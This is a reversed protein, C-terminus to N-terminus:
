IFYLCQSLPDKIVQVPTVVVDPTTSPQVLGAIKSTDVLRTTRPDTDPVKPPLDVVSAKRGIINTIKPMIPADDPTTKSKSVGPPTIKTKCAIDPTISSPKPSVNPTPTVVPMVKPKPAFDPMVKPKPPIHPTIKPTPAVDPTFKPKPPVDPTTKPKPGVNPMTTVEHKIKPKPSIDPKIRRDTDTVKSSVINPKTQSDSKIVTPTATGGPTVDGSLSLPETVVLGIELLSATSDEVLKRLEKLERTINQTIDSIRDFEDQFMDEIDDEFMDEFDDETFLASEVSETLQRKWGDLEMM